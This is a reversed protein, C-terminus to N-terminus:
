TLFKLTLSPFTQTAQQFVRGGFVSTVASSRSGRFHGVAPSEARGTPMHGSGLHRRPPETLPPFLPPGQM